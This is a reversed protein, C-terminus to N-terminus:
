YYTFHLDFSGATVQRIDEPDGANRMPFSFKGAVKKDTMSSITVLGPNDKMGNTVYRGGENFNGKFFGSMGNDTIPYSGPGIGSTTYITLALHSGDAAFAEIRVVTEGDTTAEEEYKLEPHHSTL